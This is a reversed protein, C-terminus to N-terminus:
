QTNRPLTTSETSSHNDGIRGAAWLSHHQMAWNRDVEGELMADVAGEMGLTGIYIHGFIGAIMLVALGAHAVHALQQGEIGAFEFPFILLYGSAALAGGGLVTMWFVAKQGANFREAPPHGHGIFGGFQRLWDFDARNPINGRLWLAAMVLVGLTFPLGLFNHAVKGWQSLTAFADPGVLPRLLWRGFTLNLGTLALVIFSSAVMWHNARELMNFRAITRGSLGGEVRVRGRWLYFLAIAGLTGLMAAAGAWPLWVSHFARWVRGAPQVLTASKGDPISVLGEIRGLDRARAAELAEAPIQGRDTMPLRVPAPEDGNAPLTMPGSGDPQEIIWPQGIGPEVPGDAAPRSLEPMGAPAAADQAWAPLGLMLLCALHRIWKM